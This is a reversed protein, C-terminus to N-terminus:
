SYLSAKYDNEKYFSFRETSRQQKEASSLDQLEYVLPFSDVFANDFDDCLHIMVYADNLNKKETTIVIPDSCPKTTITHPIFSEQEFNWLLGDLYTAAADTSVSLLINENRFYHHKVVSYVRKLKSTGDRASLFIVDPKKITISM